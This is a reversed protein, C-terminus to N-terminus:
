IYYHQSFAVFIFSYIGLWNVVNINDVKNVEEYAKKIEEICNDEYSLKEGLLPSYKKMFDISEQIKENAVEIKALQNVADQM